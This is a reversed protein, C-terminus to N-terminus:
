KTRDVLMEGSSLFPNPCLPTNFRVNKHHSKIVLLAWSQYHLKGNSCLSPAAAPVVDSSLWHCLSARSDRFTCLFWIALVPIFTTLVELLLSSDRPAKLQKGTAVPDQFMLLGTNNVPRFLHLM